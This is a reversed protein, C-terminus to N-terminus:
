LLDFFIAPLIALLSIFALSAAFTKVAALAKLVVLKPCSIACAFLRGRLKDLLISAAAFGDIAAKATHLDPLAVRQGFFGVDDHIGCVEPATEAHHHQHVADALLSQGDIFDFVFGVGQIGRRQVLKPFFANCYLANNAVPPFSQQLHERLNGLLQALKMLDFGDATIQCTVRFRGSSFRQPPQREGQLTAALLRKLARQLRPKPLM